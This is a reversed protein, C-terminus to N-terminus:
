VRLIKTPPQLVERTDLALKCAEIGEGHPINTYILSRVDLTVLIPDPPLDTLRELKLLFDSTDKIYSPIKKVLPNLHYDVFQSIGETPAEYSSM